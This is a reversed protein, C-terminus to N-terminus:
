PGRRHQASLSLVLLPSLALTPGPFVSMLLDIIWGLHGWMSGFFETAPLLFHQTHTHTHTHITHYLNIKSETDTNIYTQSMKRRHKRLSSLSPGLCLQIYVLTSNHTKAENKLEGHWHWTKVTVVNFWVHLCLCIPYFWLCPVWVKQMTCVRSSFSQLVRM